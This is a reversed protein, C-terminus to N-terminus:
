NGAYRYRFTESSFTEQHFVDPSQRYRETQAVTPPLVPPLESECVGSQGPIPHGWNPPQLGKWADMVGLAAALSRIMGRPGYPQATVKNVCEVLVYDAPTSKALQLVIKNAWSRVYDTLAKYGATGKGYRQVLISQDFQHWFKLSVSTVDIYGVIDWTTLADYL